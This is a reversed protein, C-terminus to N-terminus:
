HARKWQCDVGKANISYTSFMDSSLELMLSSARKKEHEVYDQDLRQRLQVKNMNELRHVTSFFNLSM